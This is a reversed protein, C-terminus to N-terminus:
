KRFVKKLAKRENLVRTFPRCATPLKRIFNQGM